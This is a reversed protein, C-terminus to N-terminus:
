FGQFIHTFLNQLTGGGWSPACGEGMNEVGAPFGSPASKIKHRDSVPVLTSMMSDVVFTSYLNNRNIKLLQCKGNKFTRYEGFFHFVLIKVYNTISYSSCTTTALNFLM